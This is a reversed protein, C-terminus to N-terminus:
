KVPKLYVWRIIGILHIVLFLVSVFSFLSNLFSIHKIMEYKNVHDKGLSFNYFSYNKLILFTICFLTTLGIQLYFFWSFRIKLYYVLTSIIGFLLFILLVFQTKGLVYYNNHWQLDIEQVPSFFTAIAAATLTIFSLLFFKKM